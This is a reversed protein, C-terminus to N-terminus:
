YSFKNSETRGNFKWNQQKKNRTKKKWKQEAKVIGRERERELIAHVNKAAANCSTLERRTWSACLSITAFYNWFAAEHTSARWLDYAKTSTFPPHAGTPNLCGFQASVEGVLSNTDSLKWQTHSHTHTDVNTGLRFLLLFHRCERMRLAQVNKNKYERGGNNWKM